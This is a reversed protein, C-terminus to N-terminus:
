PCSSTDLLNFHTFAIFPNELLPIVITWHFLCLVIDLYKVILPLATFFLYSEKIDQWSCAWLSVCPPQGHFYLHFYRVRYPLISLFTQLAPQFYNNTNYACLTEKLLTRIHWYNPWVQVTTDNSLGPQTTDLSVSITHKNHYLRTRLYYVLTYNLM